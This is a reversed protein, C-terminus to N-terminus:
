PPHTVHTLPFVRHLHLGNHVGAEAHASVVAAPVGHHAVRVVLRALLMAARLLAGVGVCARPCVDWGGEAQM